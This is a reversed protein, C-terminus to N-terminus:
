DVVTFDLILNDNTFQLLLSCMNNDGSYLYIVAKFDFLFPLLCEVTLGAHVLFYGHKDRWILQAKKISNMALLHHLCFV